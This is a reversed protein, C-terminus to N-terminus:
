GRSCERSGSTITQTRIIFALQCLIEIHVIGFSVYRHAAFDRLHESPISDEDRGKYALYGVWAM